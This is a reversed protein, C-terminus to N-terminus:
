GAHRATLAAAAERLQRYREATDLAPDPQFDYM